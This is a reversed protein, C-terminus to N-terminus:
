AEVPEFFKWLTELVKDLSQQTIYAPGEGLNTHNTTFGLENVSVNGIEYIRVFNSSSHIALDCKRARAKQITIWSAGEENKGVFYLIKPM